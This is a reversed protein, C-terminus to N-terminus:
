TVLGLVPVGSPLTDYLLSQRRNLPVVGAGIMPDEGSSGLPLELQRMGDILQNSRRDLPFDVFINLRQISEKWLFEGFRNTKNRFSVEEEEQEFLHLIAIELIKVIWLQCIEFRKYYQVPM